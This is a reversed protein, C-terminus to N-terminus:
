QLAILIPILGQGDRFPGLAKGIVAGFAKLPDNAKMAHGPTSSTTLLDGVEVSAYQADVKCYVKGLLAVPQRNNQSQRKGLVIGPKYDGAGSIVGAVRKDYPQCSQHLFGGDGLVMVTGPEISEAEDVDFEEACDGGILSVDFCTIKSSAGSLSLDGSLIVDGTGNKILVAAVGTSFGSETMFGINGDANQIRARKGSNSDNLTLLPQFGVIQLGEQAHIEVTNTADKIVVAAAGTSLSNDTLFGIDGAATQIRARKGSNSDNLTLLPQFGVIQLGDQGNITVPGDFTEAM